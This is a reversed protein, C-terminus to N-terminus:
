APRIHEPRIQGRVGIWRCGIQEAMARYVIAIHGVPFLEVIQRLPSLDTRYLMPALAAGHIAVVKEATEFLRFQEAVSLTEPYVKEYGREALFSEIEAENELSRTGHRYLFLRRPAVPPGRLGEVLATVWPIRVWDRRVSRVAILPEFAFDVATGRLVADTCLVKLGFLGAAHRIYDAAGEPLIITVSHPDIGLQDCAFFLIPLHNNLFHAWNGPTNHRFDIMPTEVTGPGPEPQPRHQLMAPLIGLPGSRRRVPPRAEIEHM